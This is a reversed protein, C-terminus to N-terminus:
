SLRCLRVDGSDGRVGMRIGGRGGLILIRSSDTEAGPFLASVALWDKNWDGREM